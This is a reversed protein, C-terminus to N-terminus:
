ETNFTGNFGLWGVEKFKPLHTTIDLSRLTVEAAQFM